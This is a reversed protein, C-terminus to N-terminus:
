WLRVPVQIILTVTIKLSDFSAAATEESPPDHLAELGHQLVACLSSISSEQLSKASEISSVTKMVKRLAKPISPIPNLACLMM